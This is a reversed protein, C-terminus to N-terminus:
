KSRYHWKLKVYITAMEKLIKNDYSTETSFDPYTPTITLVSISHNNKHSGLDNKIGIKLNEDIFYFPNNM